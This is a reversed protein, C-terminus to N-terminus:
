LKSKLGNKMYKKQKSTRQISEKKTKEEAPEPSVVEQKEQSLVQLDDAAHEALAVPLVFLLIGFNVRNGREFSYVLSSSEKYFSIIIPDNLAIHYYFCMGVDSINQLIEKLWNNKIQEKHAALTM